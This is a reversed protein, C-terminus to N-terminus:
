LTLLQEAVAVLDPGVVDPRPALPDLVKGPRAVFAGAYGARLAGALDWAHAAVLRLQSSPLEFARAAHEYVERAPKLHQVSDASLIREFYPTLEAHELQVEAVDLTSNTLAALRMGAAQLRTLAEKVEPHPPLARVGGLIAAKDGGTLTVGGRAAVMELAAEAVRSFDAYSGTVEGVLASQITQEFWRERVGADGFVRVFLPDLASLDLLTENVDFVLVQTM